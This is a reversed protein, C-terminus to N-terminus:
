NTNGNEEIDNFLEILEDINKNSIESMINDTFKVDIKNTYNLLGKTNLIKNGEVFLNEINQNIEIDIKIFPLKQTISYLINRWSYNGYNNKYELFVDEQVILKLLKDISGNNSEKLLIVLDKDTYPLVMKKFQFPDEEILLISKKQLIVNVRKTLVLLSTNKDFDRDKVFAKCKDFWEDQMSLIDEISKVEIILWYNQIKEKEEEKNKFYLVGFSFDKKDFGHYIFISNILDKM